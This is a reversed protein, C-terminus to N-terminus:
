VKKLRHWQRNLSRYYRQWSKDLSMLDYLSWSNILTTNPNNDLLGMRQLEIRENLSEFTTLKTLKSNDNLIEVDKDLLAQKIDIIFSTTIVYVTDNAPRIELVKFTSGSYIRRAKGYTVHLKFDPHIGKQGPFMPGHYFLVHKFDKDSPFFLDWSPNKLHVNYHKMMKYDEGIKDALRVISGVKITQNRVIVESLKAGLAIEIFPNQEKTKLVYLQKKSKRIEQLLNFFADFWNLGKIEAYADISEEFLSARFEIGHEEKLYTGIKKQVEIFNNNHQLGNLFTKLHSEDRKIIGYDCYEELSRMDSLKSLNREKEELLSIGARIVENYSNYRDTKCLEVVIDEFNGLSIDTDKKMKTKIPKITQLSFPRLSDLNSVGGVELYWYDTESDGSV